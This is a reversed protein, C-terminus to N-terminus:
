PYLTRHGNGLGTSPSHSFLIVKRLPPLSGLSSGMSRSIPDRGRLLEQCASSWLCSVRLACVWIFWDKHTSPEKSCTCMGMALDMPKSVVLGSVSPSNTCEMGTWGAVAEQYFMAPSKCISLHYKAQIDVMMREHLLLLSSRSLPCPHPVCDHPRHAPHPNYM